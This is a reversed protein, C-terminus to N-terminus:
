DQGEKIGRKEALDRRLYLCFDDFTGISIYNQQVFSYLAPRSSLPYKGWFQYDTVSVDVITAPPNQTLDMKLLDWSGPVSSPSTDLNPATNVWPILGVLYNCNIFRSSPDRKSALYIEPAFGWVWITQDPQTVEQLKSSIESLREKSEVKKDTASWLQQYAYGHFYIIPQLAGSIFIIIWIIIATRATRREMEAFSRILSDFGYGTIWGVFAAAPIFYHGFLRGGAMAMVLSGVLGAIMIRGAGGDRNRNSVLTYCGGVGLAVTLFQPFGWQWATQWLGSIFEWGYTGSAFYLLNYKVYLSWFGGFGGAIFLPVVLVLYAAASYLFIRFVDTIDNRSIRGAQRRGWLTGVLLFLIILLAHIKFWVALAILIGSSLRNLRQGECWRLMLWAFGLLPPLMFIETLASVADSPLYGGIAVATMVGGVLGPIYGRRNRLSIGIMLAAGLHAVFASGRVAEMNWSGFVGFLVRYLYFIGPAAHDWADRYPLGGKEMIRAVSAYIGEDSNLFNLGFYPLRLALVTLAPLLWFIATQFYRALKGQTSLQTPPYHLSGNM